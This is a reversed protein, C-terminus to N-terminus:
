IVACRATQEMGNKNQTLMKTNTSDFKLQWIADLSTPLGSHLSPLYIPSQQLKFPRGNNGRIHGGSIRHTLRCEHRGAAKRICNPQVFRSSLWFLFVSGRRANQTAKRIGRKNQTTHHTSFLININVRMVVLYPTAPRLSGIHTLDSTTLVTATFLATTM